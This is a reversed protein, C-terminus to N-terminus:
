NIMEFESFVGQFEKVNVPIEYDCVLSFKEWLELVTKNHHARTVADASKWEFIEIISGDAAKMVIPNRESALNQARLISVHDKVLQILQQDKGKKPRYVVIVGRGM